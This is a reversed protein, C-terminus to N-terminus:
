YITPTYKRLFVSIRSFMEFHERRIEFLEPVIKLIEFLLNHSAPILFTHTPTTLICLYVIYTACLKVMYGRGCTVKSNM